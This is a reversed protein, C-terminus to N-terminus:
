NQKLYDYFNYINGAGMIVLVDGKKLNNKVFNKAEEFTPVFLCNERDVSAVVKESNVKKKVEESERAEVTYIPYLLLKNVFHHDLSEKFASVFDDFLNYTREYQHPQYICYINQEKYKDRIAELTLKIATPHHGYDNIITFDFSENDVDMRRWTGKFKSLARLSVEDDIGLERAAKLAHFANIENFRGPVQLNKVNADEKNFVIKNNGEIIKDLDKEIIVKESQSAFKNFSNYINELNKFYDLHDAEINMILSIQPRYNLYSDEYECAEIILYKSNGIRLNSNGFEKVKTGVIVTPDLGAEILVFSIMTTTTTKGHTGAVAITFMDRSLEGLAEPYSLLKINKAKAEIFEENNEKIAPTYVVVDLGDIINEKKQPGIHIKAGKKILNEIIDSGYVDSGYVENGKELYYKALASIGIGGIGIFYIKM